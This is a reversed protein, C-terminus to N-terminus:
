LPDEQRSESAHSTVMPEKLLSKSHYRQKCQTCQVGSRHTTWQHGHQQPAKLFCALLDKKQQVMPVKTNIHQPSKQHLFHEKTESFFTWALGPLVSFTAPTRTSAGNFISSKKPDLWFPWRHPKPRPTRSFLKGTSTPTWKM